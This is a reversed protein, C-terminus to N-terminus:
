LAERIASPVSLHSSLVIGLPLGAAFASDQSGFAPRLLVRAGAALNDIAAIMDPIKEATLVTGTVVMGFNVLGAGRAEEQATRDAARAEAMSRASPRASSTARFSANRKDAEVIRAATAADLPRYLLTIRKRDVDPHPAILQALVSSYVEGRPAQSM